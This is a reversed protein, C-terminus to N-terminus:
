ERAPRPSHATPPRAYCHRFACRGRLGSGRCCAGRPAPQPPPLVPPPGLLGREALHARDCEDPCASRFTVDLICRNTTARACQRKTCGGLDARYFPHHVPCQSNCKSSGALTRADPDCGVPGVTPSPRLPTVDDDDDNM